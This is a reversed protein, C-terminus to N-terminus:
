ETVVVTLYAKGENDEDDKFRYIVYYFGEKKTDVSTKEIKVEKKDLPNGKYDNLSKINDLPDFNSGKKLYIINEKFEMQPELNNKERVAVLAQLKSTDGLSNTVQAIVTYTGATKTSVSSSLLKVNKTIDGGNEKNDYCDVAGIIDITDINQGMYLCLQQSLTFKPPVYDTFEIIRSARAIHNDSDSVAYTIKCQHGTIFKSIEEVVIDSTLDGDKKDYVTVGTKLEEETANVSVRYVDDQNKISFEPISDDVNIKIEYLNYLFIGSVAIFILVTLIRILRM